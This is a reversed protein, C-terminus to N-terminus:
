SIYISIYFHSGSSFYVTYFCTFNFGYTNCLNLSHRVYREMVILGEYNKLPDKRLAEAENTVLPGKDGKPRVKLKM